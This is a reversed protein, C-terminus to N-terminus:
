ANCDSVIWLNGWRTKRSLITGMGALWLPFPYAVIREMGGVGLGLYVRMGLMGIGMLGVVGVSLALL